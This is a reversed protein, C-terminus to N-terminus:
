RRARRCRARPIWTSSAATTSATGTTRETMRRFARPRRSARTSRASTPRWARSARPSCTTTRTRATADPRLDAHAVRDIGRADAVDGHRGGQLDPEPPLLSLHDRGLGPRQRGPDDQRFGRHGSRDDAAAGAPADVDLERAAARKDKRASPIRRGSGVVRVKGAMGPHVICLYGFTGKKKFKLKYPQPPGQLPLGSNELVTPDFTKGGQPLGALPNFGVTPQGNFWFPNGAEDSSGAIPM